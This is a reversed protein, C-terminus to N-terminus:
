SQAAISMGAASMAISAVDVGALAPVAASRGRTKAGPTMEEAAGSTAGAKRSPLVSKKLRLNPPCHVIRRVCRSPPDQDGGTVADNEPRQFSM